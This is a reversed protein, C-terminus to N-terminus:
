LASHRSTRCITVILNTHLKILILECFLVLVMVFNKRFYCRHGVNSFCVSTGYITLNTHFGDM